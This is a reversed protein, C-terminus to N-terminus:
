NLDASVTSFSIKPIPALRLDETEIEPNRALIMATRCVSKLERVNGPWTHELLKQLAELSLPKRPLKMEISATSLFHEALLEIDGKRERLPPVNVCYEQIRYFLDSRFGGSEIEQSLNRQTASVIRVDVTIDKTSGVPRITKEQIARLLKTQLPSPLEGIEDLFLTGGDAIKFLGDKSQHAGTFAGRQYGFLESDLLSESLNACNIAVFEGTRQSQRHVYKALEEKGVGNEGLLLVAVNFRSVRELEQIVSVMVPSSYIISNHANKLNQLEGQTKFLREQTRFQKIALWAANSATKFRDMEVTSFKKQAFDLSGLFIVTGPNRSLPLCVIQKLEHNKISQSSTEGIQVNIPEMAFLSRELLTQSEFVQQEGRLIKGSRDLAMVCQFEGSEKEFLSAQDLQFIELLSKLMLRCSESFSEGNNVQDIMKILRDSLFSEEV